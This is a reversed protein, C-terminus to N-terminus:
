LSVFTFGNQITFVQKKQAHPTISTSKGIPTIDILVLECQDITMLRFHVYSTM